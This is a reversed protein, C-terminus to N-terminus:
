FNGKCRLPKKLKFVTLANKSGPLVNQASSLHFFFYETLNEFWAPLITRMALSNSQHKARIPVKADAINAFPKLYKNLKSKEAVLVLTRTSLLKLYKENSDNIKQLM